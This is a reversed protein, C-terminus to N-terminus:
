YYRFYRRKEDVRGTVYVDWLFEGIKLKIVEPASYAMDKILIQYEEDIEAYIKTSQHKNLSVSEIVGKIEERQAQREKAILNLINSVVKTENYDNEFDALIQGLESGLKSGEWKNTPKDKSM